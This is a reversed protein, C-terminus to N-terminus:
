AHQLQLDRSAALHVRVPWEHRRATEPLMQLEQLALDPHGLQLWLEASRVPLADRLPLGATTVQDLDLALQEPPPMPIPRRSRWRAIAWALAAFLPRLVASVLTETYFASHPIRLTSNLKTNMM